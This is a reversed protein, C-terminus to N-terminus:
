ASLVTLDRLHPEVVAPVDKDCEHTVPEFHGRWAIGLIQMTNYLGTSWGRSRLEKLGAAVFPSTLDHFMVCATEACLDAVAAADQRPADGDHLGDIFVFSWPEPGATRVPRVLGPSFGAWLRYSGGKEVTSLSEEVASRQDVHQLAPDIVDLVLGAALLHATSWGYHCGIELGRRGRFPLANNYLLEAEELSLVGTDPLRHSRTDVRWIHPAATRLYEWPIQHPDRPALSPFKGLLESRKLGPSLHDRRAIPRADQVASPAAAHGPKVMLRGAEDIYHFFPRTHGGIRLKDFYEDVARRVGQSGGFDSLLLVGEEVLRPYLHELEAQAADYSDPDLCLCCIRDPGASPLLNRVDGQVFDVRDLDCGTARLNTRVSDIDAKAGLLAESSHSAADVCVDALSEAAGGDSTDAETAGAFTDFLWFRKDDMGFHAFTKIAIISSGGRRVGCVVFDGPLFNQAVYRISRFLALGRDFSATTFPAAAEWIGAFPRDEPDLDAAQM